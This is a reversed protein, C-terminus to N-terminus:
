KVPGATLLDGSPLLSMYDVLIHETEVLDVDVAPPKEEDPGEDAGAAASAGASAALTANTGAGPWDAGKHGSAKAVTSNTHELPPPLGPQSAQKLTLEYVTEPPSKRALREKDRAKQRADAEEKEKLRQKENLSVTKDAQQKKFLEIDERVYAFEKDGAVRQGSRKRLEPLYPTVLNLQDYRASPITDWALPNDLAAEGVDKAENWISPLVIDSLVGKKQTSAGSPRYFKKITLKLAGPDNTFAIDPMHPKLPEVMQVTGKGHTSVDGVILARGYDQLAGALIESASASFRSTLVILPGDYAVSSDPDDDEEVGGKWNRVQVVPGDKIFLGTLRIAEELSGGGNGRLDLILGRVGEKKLKTILRATDL